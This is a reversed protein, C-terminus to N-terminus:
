RNSACEALHLERPAVSREQQELNGTIAELWSRNPVDKTADVLIRRQEPGLFVVPASVAMGPCNTTTYFDASRAILYARVRLQQDDFKYIVSLVAILGVFFGSLAFLWLHLPQKGSKCFMLLFSLVSWILVAWFLYEGRKFLYVLTLLRLTNPFASADIGYLSNLLNAADISSALLAWGILVAFTAQSAFEARLIRVLRINAVFLMQYFILLALGAVLLYPAFGRVGPISSDGMVGAAFYVLVVATIGISTMLVNRTKEDSSNVTNQPDHEM